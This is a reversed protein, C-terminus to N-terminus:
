RFGLFDLSLRLDYPVRALGLINEDRLESQIQQEVKARGATSDQDEDQDQSDQDEDQDKPDDGKPKRPTM